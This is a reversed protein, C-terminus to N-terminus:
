AQELQDVPTENLTKCLRILAKWSKENDNSKISYIQKYPEPDDGLYELGGRGGPSGQVKWRVGKTTDFNEKIFEKNFQQASVYLGWSEGNIVVRVFNAKPVPLYNRAIDFYLVTHLF